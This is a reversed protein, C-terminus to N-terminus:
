LGARHSPTSQHAEHRSRCPQPALSTCPRPWALDRPRRRCRLGAAPRGNCLIQRETPQRNAASPKIPPSRRRRCVPRPIVRQGYTHPPARAPRDAYPALRGATSSAQPARRCTAHPTHHRGHLQRSTQALPRAPHGCPPLAVVVATARTIRDCMSAAGALPTCSSLVSRHQCQHALPQPPTSNAQDFDFM